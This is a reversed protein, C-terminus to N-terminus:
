KQDPPLFYFDTETNNRPGCGGPNPLSRVYIGLGVTDYNRMLCVQTINLAYADRYKMTVDVLPTTITDDTAVSFTGSSAAYQGAHIFLNM